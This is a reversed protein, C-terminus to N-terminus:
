GSRILGTPTGISLIKHSNAIPVEAVGETSISGPEILNPPRGPIVELRTHSAFADADDAHDFASRHKHLLVCAKRRFSSDSSLRASFPSRSAGRLVGNASTRPWARTRTQAAAGSIALVADHARFM